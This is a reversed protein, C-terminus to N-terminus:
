FEALVFLFIFSLFYVALIKLLLQHRARRRTSKGKVAPSGLFFFCFPQTKGGVGDGGGGGALRRRRGHRDADEGQLAGVVLM